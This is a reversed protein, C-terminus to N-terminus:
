KWVIGPFQPVQFCEKNATFSHIHDLLNFDVVWMLRGVCQLYLAVADERRLTPKATPFHVLAMEISKVERRPYYLHKQIM